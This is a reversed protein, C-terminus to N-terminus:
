IKVIKIGSLLQQMFRCMQFYLLSPKQKALNIKSDANTLIEAIATQEAFFPIYIEFNFFDKTTGKLLGHARGVGNIVKMLGRYLGKVKKGSGNPYDNSYSKNYCFEDKYILYISDLIESV